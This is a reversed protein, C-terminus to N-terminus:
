KLINQFRIRSQSSARNDRLNLLKCLAACACPQNLVAFLRDIHLENRESDIRQKMKSVYACRTCICIYNNVCIVIVTHKPIRMCEHRGAGYRM